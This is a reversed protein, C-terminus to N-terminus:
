APLGDRGIEGYDGVVRQQEARLEEQLIVDLPAGREEAGEAGREGVGLRLHSRVMIEWSRAVQLASM